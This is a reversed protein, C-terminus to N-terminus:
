KPPMIYGIVTYGGYEKDPRFDGLGLTIQRHYMYCVNKPLVMFVTDGLLDYVINKYFERDMRREWHDILRPRKKCMKKWYDDLKQVDHRITYKGCWHQRDLRPKIDYWGSRRFQLEPRLLVADYTMHAGYGTDGLHKIPFYIIVSPDAILAAIAHHLLEYFAPDGDLMLQDDEPYDDFAWANECRPFKLIKYIRGKHYVEYCDAKYKM